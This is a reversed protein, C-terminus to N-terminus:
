DDLTALVCTSSGVERNEAVADIVMNRPSYKYRDDNKM